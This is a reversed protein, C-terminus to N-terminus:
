TVRQTLLIHEYNEHLDTLTSIAHSLIHIRTFSLKLENNTIRTDKSTLVINGIYVYITLQFEYLSRMRESVYMYM